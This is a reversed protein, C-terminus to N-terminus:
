QLTVKITDMKFAKLYNQLSQSWHPMIDLGISKLAYNELVSYKPRSVKMPFENPDAVSLRVSTNTLEFIKAAFEYWSCHGKAAVHYLGYKYCGALRLIQLAIDGTYTPSTIEDNVVRVEDREKALRLMTTVFNRGGKARCPNLGYIGSVRLIFYKNAINRVFFEGSLKTNGYVNLPNPCDIERYPAGKSGDFVYDTSIHMLTCGVENSMVALNRAGIGNVLFSKKPDAECAEVNHMAATNIVLDPLVQRLVSAVSDIDSLEFMDHTLTIVEEGACEFAKCIDSGLQGNAGIVAVKM